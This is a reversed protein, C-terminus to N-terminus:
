TSKKQFIQNIKASSIGLSEACEERSLNNNKMYEKLELALRAYYKKKNIINIKRDIIFKKKCNKIILYKKSVNKGIM